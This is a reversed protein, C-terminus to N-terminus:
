KMKIKQKSVANKRGPGKRPVLEADWSDVGSILSQDLKKQYHELTTAPDAHRL